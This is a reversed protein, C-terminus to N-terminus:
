NIKSEDKGLREEISTQLDFYTPISNLDYKLVEQIVKLILEQKLDERESLSTQLLSKKIKGEFATIIEFIASSNGSQAIKFLSYLSEM